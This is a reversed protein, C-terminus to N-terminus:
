AAPKVEAAPAKEEAEAPASPAAAAAEAAKKKKGRSVKVKPGAIVNQDVLLNHVRDSPQAGVSIWYKIREANVECVKSRPNFHGLIELSKGYMDRGKEAVTIRYSPQKTKGVRAFRIALM